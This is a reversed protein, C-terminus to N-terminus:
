WCRPEPRLQRCKECYVDRVIRTEPARYLAPLRLLLESQLLAILKQLSAHTGCLYLPQHGGDITKWEDHDRVYVEVPTATELTVTWKEDPKGPNQATDWLRLLLVFLGEVPIRVRFRKIRLQWHRADDSVTKVHFEKLPECRFHFM